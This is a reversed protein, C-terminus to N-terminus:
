VRMLLTNTTDVDTKSTRKDGLIKPQKKKERYYKIISKQKFFFEAVTSHWRVKQRTVNQGRPVM